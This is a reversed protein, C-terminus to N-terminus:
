NQGSSLIAARDFLLMWYLKMGDRLMGFCVIGPQNFDERKIERARAM